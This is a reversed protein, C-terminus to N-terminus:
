RSRPRATASCTTPPAWALRSTTTAPSASRGPSPSRTHCQVAVDADDRQTRRSCLELRPRLAARGAAHAPKEDVSGARVALRNRHSREAGLAALHLLQLREPHRQQVPVAAADPQRRAGAAVESVLGSLRGEHQPRRDRVLRDRALQDPERRQGRLCRGASRVARSLQLEGTRVDDVTRDGSDPQQLQGAPRHRFRGVPVPLAFLGGRAAPPEDGAVDLDGAHRQLSFRPLRPVDGAGHHHERDRGLQRRADPLGRREAHADLGLLPASARPFVVRPQAGDAPQHAPVIRDGQRGREAGRHESGERVAVEDRRRRQPQRLRGAGPALTSYKRLNGYFWLKDRKIPGGGSGNADWSSIVKAPLTLGSGGEAVPRRLTDTLNDGSSWGGAGQYFFSGNFTNGGSKPVLNVQPGGNEAEGLSGSVSVQMEETNAVDYIFTSVGGGNFSAAVNLGDVM